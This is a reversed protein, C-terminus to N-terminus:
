DTHRIRRGPHTYAREVRNKDERKVSTCNLRSVRRGKCLSTHSRTRLLMTTGYTDCNMGSMMGVYWLLLRRTKVKETGGELSSYGVRFGKEGKRKRNRIGKLADRSAHVVERYVGERATERAETRVQPGGFVNGILCLFVFM